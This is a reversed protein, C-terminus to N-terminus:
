SPEHTRLEKALRLMTDAVVAQTQGLADNWSASDQGVCASLHVRTKTWLTLAPSNLLPLDEVTTDTAKLGAALWMAGNACVYRQGNVYDFPRGQTWGERIYDAASELVDAMAENLPVEVKM